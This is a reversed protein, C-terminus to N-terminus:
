YVDNTYFYEFNIFMNKTIYELNNDIVFIYFENSIIFIDDPYKAYRICKRVYDKYKDLAESAKRQNLYVKGYVCVKNGNYGTNRIYTDCNLLTLTGNKLRNAIKENRNKMDDISLDLKDVNCDHCCSVVNNTIYGDDPIIRDVGNWKNTERPRQCYVCDKMILVDWEEQSLSFPRQQKQSKSQASDIRPRTINDSWIDSIDDFYEKFVRYYAKRIFSDPDCNGKSLNCGMCCGVCNDPIHNLKSDIRDMTKAIDGCYLCGDKMKNFIIDDTFDDSYPFKNQKANSRIKNCYNNWIKEDEIYGKIIFLLVQDDINIRRKKQM